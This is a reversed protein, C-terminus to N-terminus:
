AVAAQANGIFATIKAHDKVGDTEVGSSVDVCWPRVQMVATGVNDPTLGGALVFPTQEQVSSGVQWDFTKGTGGGKSDLLVAAAKGGEIQDGVQEASMSPEMHVVRVAPRVLQDCIEWGEHGHLQILDLGVREAVGNMEEVTADVFVGVTLPGGEKAARALMARWVELWQRKDCGGGVAAPWAPLSWGAPRARERRAAAVIAKGEEESV